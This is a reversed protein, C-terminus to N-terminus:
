KQLPQLAAVTSSGQGTLQVLEAGDPSVYNEDGHLAIQTEKGNQVVYAQQNDYVIIQLNSGIVVNANKFPISGDWVTNFQPSGSWNSQDPTSIIKVLNNNIIQGLFVTGDKVGLISDEAKTAITTRQYGNVVQVTKVGGTKSDIYLVDYRDSAAMNSILEGYRSLIRVNKMVDIEFLQMNRGSTVTLYMLNTAPSFSMQQIHGGAPFSDISINERDDPAANEKPDAFDLTYLETIQPNNYRKEVKPQAPVDREQKVLPDDQETKPPAPPPVTVYTVPNPNKRAYFYILTDRDQLWQYDLVGLGPADAPAPREFVVKDQQLNFVKLVGNEKYALYGRDYSVQVDQLDADPITATLSVEIPGTSAAQGTPNLVQKVKYNLYSYAGFQLILSVVIWAAIM